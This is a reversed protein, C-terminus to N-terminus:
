SWPWRWGPPKKFKYGTRPNNFDFELSFRALQGEGDIPVQTYYDSAKGVDEYSNAIVYSGKEHLTGDSDRTETVYVMKAEGKDGVIVSQQNYKEGLALLEKDSADHALVIFSNETAGYKGVANTYMLGSDALDKELGAAREKFM